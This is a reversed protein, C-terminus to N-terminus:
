GTNRLGAAIGSITAALVYDLEESEEGGRKRRLLEIQILSLPDVYPTRLRLSRALSPNNELLRSQGTIALVARRTRQYEELVMSFVRERLERDHVLESYRRALPLDVKTLALEVNRILDNFFPFRRMMEGMLGTEEEGKAAFRELAYGAGFWGPIVHRSQMWGFGWPIARLDSLDRAAGRRAPRSGIKALEFEQVPTAQEFYPLIDPNEAIRARYFDYADAAMEELATEWSGEPLLGSQGPRALAELSAAVMLELNRQALAADSYKWNIVEGQETIKLSGNFSGAPQSVIARHTPGGGRGVTGGRGHFLVLNVGCGAAVRHLERHAKHIEWSSTLMGGDKNSDSYGLMVEQRRGWSDLYPAYEPLNWLTRCIEPARRLDEISEFLPVPMLGPDGNADAAVRVGCLELLWVLSLADQVRSAGSIVYSRMAEAPYRRKLTAITRLTDLLETTEPGPTAPLVASSGAGARSLTALEAVANDHIRAHQRIDLTHLHFGFTRVRLLLPDIQARVLREGENAALSESMILLDNEFAAAAPYADRHDPEDLSRRLRHLMYGAMRRYRECEPITDSEPDGLSLTDHYRNLAAELGPTAPIRCLSPTLLRRLEELASVYNNLIIERAKQLAEGTSKATVHPNGDRDGGIWSGFSVVKPLLAPRVASGYVESFAASLDQYFEEIPMILSDPYHDLGMKIEDLVTPKRRRVEDTQWLATIEALMASQGQLAETDTLPLRDLVELERAIRRRKFHVVRRAVDTPHATFVPVVQVQQLFRLAEEASIGERQMRMLTGRLSGPKDAKKGALGAARQRRKRHNTEAVNTLEFFTSFAKVIQYAEIIRMRGVIQVAQEQLEREVPSDVSSEGLQDNLRRHRIALHRLEEEATFAQEGAQERIVTGLLRGLSRVDRRLPAERLNADQSILEVLRAVQDEVKWFLEMEAM